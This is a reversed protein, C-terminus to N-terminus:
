LSDGPDVAHGCAATTGFHVSSTRWLTPRRVVVKQRPSTSAAMILLGTNPPRASQLHLTTPASSGVIIRETLSSTRHNCQLLHPQNSKIESHFCDSGTCSRQALDCQDQTSFTYSEISCMQQIRMGTAPITAIVVVQAMLM